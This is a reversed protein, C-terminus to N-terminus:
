SLIISAKPPTPTFAVEGSSSRRATLSAISLPLGVSILATSSGAAPLSDPRMPLRLGCLASLFFFHCSTDDRVRCLRSGPDCLFSIRESSNIHGLLCFASCRTHGLLRRGRPASGRVGLRPAGGAGRLGGGLANARRLLREGVLLAHQGGLRTRRAGGLLGGALGLLAADLGRLPGRSRHVAIAKRLRGALGEALGALREFAHADEVERVHLRTRGARLEEAVHARVHDLHFPGADAVDRAALQAVHRIRVREVERHEIAVLARDRDVRLVRLAALDEVAQDLLAVHQHLVERGAREVAHPEGPLVDVLEVRAHDDGRHLAEAGARVLVALDVLVDRLARAARGRGGAEAFARREDGARLDAIAAGAQM